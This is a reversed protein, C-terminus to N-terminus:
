LLLYDIAMRYPSPIQPNGRKKHARGSLAPPPLYFDILRKTSDTFITINEVRASEIIKRTPM